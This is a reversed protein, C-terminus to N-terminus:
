RRAVYRHGARVIVTRRKIRDFVVVRGSHVITTTSSCGDITTWDTGESGGWSNSGKVRLNGQGKRTRARVRRRKAAASASTRASAACAPPKLALVTTVSTGRTQSLTVSGGWVDASFSRRQGPTATLRVPSASTDLTPPRRRGYGTPLLLFYRLPVLRHMAPLGLEVGEGSVGRRKPSVYVWGPRPQTRSGDDVLECRESGRLVVRDRRDVIALDKGPGCSVPENRKRDRAVVVDASRGGDLRDVGRLGDLYDEGAAGALTNAEESGTVTDDQDGGRVNEVAEISDSDGPLGTRASGADLRVTVDPETSYAVTDQGPGGRLQDQGPGGSLTDDGPAGDLVDAGPGGRLTDSALGGTIGEVDLGVNDREGMGGDNAAGDKSVDVATMRAVYTVTDVDAGGSITDADPLPGGPGPVLTDDGPGGNMADNGLGGDETDAGGAGDLQDDGPGGRLLDADVGAGPNQLTAGFVRDNGSGGDIDDPGPGGELQDNASGGRLTDHGDDGLVQAPLATNNTVGDDGNGLTVVVMTVGTAGCSVIKPDGTTDGGCDMPGVLPTSTGSQSLEIQNPGFQNDGVRISPWNSEGPSAGYEFHLGDPGSTMTVTAGLAAGPFAAAVCAAVAASVALRSRKV